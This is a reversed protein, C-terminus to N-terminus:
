RWAEIIAAQGIKSTHHTRFLITWPQTMANPVGIAYGDFDDSDEPRRDRRTCGWNKREGGISDSGGTVYLCHFRDGGDSPYDLAIAWPLGASPFVSPAESPPSQRSIRPDDVIWVAEDWPSTPCAARGVHGAHLYPWCPDHVASSKDDFCRLADPDTSARSDACQGQGHSTERFPALLAGREDFLQLVNLATPTPAQDQSTWETVALALGAITALAAGIELWPRWRRSLFPQVSTSNDQADPEDQM